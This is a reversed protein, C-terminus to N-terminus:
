PCPVSTFSLAGGALPIDIVMLRFCNGAASKLIISAGPSQLVMDGNVVRVSSARVSGNFTKNGNVTQDTSLDVFNKTASGTGGNALPVVGGLSILPTTTSNTVTLPGTASVSTVSGPGRPGIPGQPGMPGQPGTAGTAGRLGQPGTAGTTGQPGQPGTAGTAGRLGQLGQPGPPGQPGIPGEEGIAVNFTDSKNGRTVTLLYTGPVIGPPLSAQIRTDTSRSVALTLDQLQVVPATNGFNSGVIVLASPVNGVEVVEVRSIEPEKASQEGKHASSMEFTASQGGQSSSVNLQLSGSPLAAPLYALIQKESSSIVALPTGNLDVAPNAGFNEGNIVIQPLVGAVEVVEVHAIRPASGKKQADQALVSAISLTLVVSFLLLSRIAKSLM